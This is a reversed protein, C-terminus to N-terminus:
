GRERALPRGPPMTLVLPLRGGAQAGGGPHPGVVDCVWAHARGAILEERVISALREIRLTHAPRDTPRVARWGPHRWSCSASCGAAHVAHPPRRARAAAPVKRHGPHPLASSGGAEALRGAPEPCAHGVGRSRSSPCRLACPRPLCSPMHRVAAAAAAGAPMRIFLPVRQRGTLVAPQQMPSCCPRHPPPAAALLSRSTAAAHRDHHRCPSPSSGAALPAVQRRVSGAGRRGEEVGGHDRGGVAM